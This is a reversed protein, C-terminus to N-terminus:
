AHCRFPRVRDPSMTRRVVFFYRLSNGQVPARTARFQKTPGRSRTPGRPGVGSRAFFPRRWSAPFTRIFRAHVHSSISWSQSRPLL